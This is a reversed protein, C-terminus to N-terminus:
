EDETINKLFLLLLLTNCETSKRKFFEYNNLKRANGYQQPCLEGTEVPLPRSESGSEWQM